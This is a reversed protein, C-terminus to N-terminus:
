AIAVTAEPSRLFEESFDVNGSQHDVAEGVPHAVDAAPSGCGAGNGTRFEDEYVSHSMIQWGAQMGLDRLMDGAENPAHFAM